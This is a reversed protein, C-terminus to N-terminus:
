GARLRGFRRGSPVRCVYLGPRVKSDPRLSRAVGRLAAFTTEDWAAVVVAREALAALEAGGAAAPPCSLAVLDYGERLRSLLDVFGQAGALSGIKGKGAVAPIYSLGTEPEQGVVEGWPVAGTVAELVGMDPAIGLERTLRQRRTDCDVVIVRRGQQAASAAACMAATAAGENDASSLFAVVNVGAFAGQLDRFATAFPSAPLFALCGLSTRQDPPLERLTAASLEPAAGLMTFGRLKSLRAASVITERGLERLAALGFGVCAGVGSWFIVAEPTLTREAFAVLLGLVAAAAATAFFLWAQRRVAGTVRRALEAGVNYAARPAYTPGAAQRARGDSRSANLGAM